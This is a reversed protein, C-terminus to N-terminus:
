LASRARCVAFSFQSSADCQADGPRAYTACNGHRCRSQCLLWVARTCGPLGLSGQSLSCCRPDTGSHDIASICCSSDRQHSRPHARDTGISAAQNRGHCEPLVHYSESPRSAVYCSGKRCSGAMHNASRAICTPNQFHSERSKRSPQSKSAHTSSTVETCSTTAHIISFEALFQSFCTGSVAYLIWIIAARRVIVSQKSKSAKRQAKSPRTQDGSELTNWVSWLIGSPAWQPVWMQLVM